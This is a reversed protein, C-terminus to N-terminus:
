RGRGARGGEWEEEDKETASGRDRVQERECVSTYVSETIYVDRYM